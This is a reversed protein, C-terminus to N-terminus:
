GIYREMIIINDPPRHIFNAGAIIDNNEIIVM